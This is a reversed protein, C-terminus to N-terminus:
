KIVSIIRKIILMIVLILIIKKLYDMLGKDINDQKIEKNYFNNQFDDITQNYYNKDLIKLAKEVNLKKSFEKEENIKGKRKNLNKPRKKFPNKRNFIVLKFIVEEEIINLAEKEAESLELNSILHMAIKIFQIIEDLLEHM